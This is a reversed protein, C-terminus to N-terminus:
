EYSFTFDANFKMLNEKGTPPLRWHRATEVACNELALNELESGIVEVLAITGDPKVGFRMDLRGALDEEELATQYCPMLDAYHDQVFAHVLTDNDIRDQRLPPAAMEFTSVDPDLGEEIWRSQPKYKTADVLSASFNSDQGTVYWAVIMAGCVLVAFVAASIFILKRDV